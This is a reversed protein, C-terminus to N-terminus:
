LDYEMRKVLFLFGYISANRRVRIAKIEDNFIVTITETARYDAKGWFMPKWKPGYVFWYYASIQGEESPGRSTLVTSKEFARSLVVDVDEKTMGKTIGWTVFERSNIGGPRSALYDGWAKFDAVNSSLGGLVSWILLFGLGGLWKYLCIKM